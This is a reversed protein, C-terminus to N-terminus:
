RSNGGTVARESFNGGERTAKRFVRDSTIRPLDFGISAIRPLFVKGKCGRILDKDTRFRPNRGLLALDLWQLGKLFNKLVKILDGRDTNM